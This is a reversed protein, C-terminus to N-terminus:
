RQPTSIVAAPPAPIMKGPALPYGQATAVPVSEIAGGYAEGCGCPDAYNYSARAFHKQKWHHCGAITLLGLGVSTLLVFRRM